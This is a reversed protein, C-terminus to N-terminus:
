WKSNELVYDLFMPCSKSIQDYCKEFDEPRKDFFPDMIIKHGDPNFEGLLFVKAKSKLSEAYQNLENVNYPDMGLM